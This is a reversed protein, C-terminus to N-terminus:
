FKMIISNTQAETTFLNGRSSKKISSNLGDRQLVNRFLQLHIPQKKLFLYYGRCPSELIGFNM